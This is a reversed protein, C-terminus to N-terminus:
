RQKQPPQHRQSSQSPLNHKLGSLNMSATSTLPDSAPQKLSSGQTDLEADENRTRVDDRM